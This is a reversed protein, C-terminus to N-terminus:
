RQMVRVGVKTVKGAEIERAVLEMAGLLVRDGVVCRNHFRRQMFDTLTMSVAKPPVSAGYINAVAEM